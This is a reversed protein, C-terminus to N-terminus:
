RSPRTTRARRPPLGVDAVPKVISLYAVLGVGVDAAADVFSRHAAIRAEVAEHVSVMFVRDGPRLAARM